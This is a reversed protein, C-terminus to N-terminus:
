NDKFCKTEKIALFIDSITVKYLRAMKEKLEDSPKRSANEIMSLYEKTIELLKSAQEQTLNSEERLQKFTKVRM